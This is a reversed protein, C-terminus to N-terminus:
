RSLIIRLQVTKEGKENENPQYYETLVPQPITTLGLRVDGGSSFVGRDPLFYNVSNIIAIDKAVEISKDENVQNVIKAIQSPTVTEVEVSQGFVKTDVFFSAFYLKDWNGKLENLLKNLGERSCNLTYVRRNGEKISTVSGILGSDEIARSIISDVGRFDNTKLELKGSLRLDAVSPIQTVRDGTQSPMLMNIVVMLVAALLVMAAAAFIRRFLIFRSKPSQEPVFVHNTRSTQTKANLSAKLNEMICSPAKVVPLASVLMRCKQIQRLRVAIKPDNAAMRKVETRQRVSLEGDVYSNLLEEIKMEEKM